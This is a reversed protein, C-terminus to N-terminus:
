LRAEILAVMEAFEKESYGISQYIIKGNQDVIINRPISQTAFKSFIGRDVDPLIPFTFGKAKKFPELKDWGEERGFVFFAFGPNDRYKDWIQKQALPLETNCPPCWTAFLNILILKGKYDNINVTKGREIEFSFQPVNDGVKTLTSQDEQAMTAFPLLLLLIALRTLKM